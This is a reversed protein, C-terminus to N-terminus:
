MKWVRSHLGHRKTTTTTSIIITDGRLCNHAKFIRVQLVIDSAINIRHLLSVNTAITALASTIQRLSQIIHQAHKIIIINAHMPQMLQHNHACTNILVLILNTAHQCRLQACIAHIHIGHIQNCGRTRRIHNVVRLHGRGIQQTCDVVIRIANTDSFLRRRQRRLRLCTNADFLKM